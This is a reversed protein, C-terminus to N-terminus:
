MVRITDKSYSNTASRHQLVKTKKKEIQCLVHSQKTTSQLHRRFTKGKKEKTKNKKPCDKKGRENESKRSLTLQPYSSRILLQLRKRWIIMRLEQFNHAKLNRNRQPYFIQISDNDRHM